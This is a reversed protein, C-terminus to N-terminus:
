FEVAVRGTRIRETGFRRDDDRIITRTPKIRYIIVTTSNEGDHVNDDEVQGLSREEGGNRWIEAVVGRLRIIETRFSRGDYGVVSRTTKFEYIMTTTSNKTNHVNDDEDTGLSHEEAGNRWFEAVMGRLEIRDTGFNKDDGGVITQTREM